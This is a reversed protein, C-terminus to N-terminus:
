SATVNRQFVVEESWINTITINYAVGSVPVWQDSEFYTTSDKMGENDYGVKTLEIDDARVVHNNWYIFGHIMYIELSNEKENVELVFDYTDIDSGDDPDHLLAAFVLVLLVSVSIAVTIALLYNTVDRLSM